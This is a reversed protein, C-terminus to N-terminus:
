ASIERALAGAGCRIRYVRILPNADLRRKLTIRTTRRAAILKRELEPSVM